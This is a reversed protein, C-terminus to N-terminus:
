KILNRRKKEIISKYNKSRPAIAHSKLAVASSAIGIPIVFLSPFAPVYIFFHEIYCLTTCVKKHQNSILENQDIVKIFYNRTEETNKM